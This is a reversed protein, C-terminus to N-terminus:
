QVVLFIDLRVMDLHNEPLSGQHIDVIRLIDVVAM